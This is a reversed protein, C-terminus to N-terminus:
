AGSRNARKWDLCKQGISLVFELEGRDLPRVGCRCGSLKRQADVMAIREDRSLVGPWRGVEQYLM